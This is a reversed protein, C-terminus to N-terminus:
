KKELAEEIQNNKEKNKNEAESISNLLEGLGDSLVKSNSIAYLKDAVTNEMPRFDNEDGIVFFDNGDEDKNWKFDTWLYDAVLLKSLEFQALMKSPGTFDYNQSDETMKISFDGEESLKKSLKQSAIFYNVHNMSHLRVKGVNIQEDEENKLILDRWVGKNSIKFM